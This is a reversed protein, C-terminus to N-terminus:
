RTLAEILSEARARDAVRCPREDRLTWSGREIAGRQEGPQPPGAWQVPHYSGRGRCEAEILSEARGPGAAEGVSPPQALRIFRIFRIFRGFRIFRILRIFRVRVRCWWRGHM